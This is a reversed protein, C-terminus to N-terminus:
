LKEFKFFFFPHNKKKSYAYTFKVNKSRYNILYFNLYSYILFKVCINERGRVEEGRKRKGFVEFPFYFMQRKKVDKRSRVEAYPLVLTLQGTSIMTKFHLSILSAIPDQLTLFPYSVM